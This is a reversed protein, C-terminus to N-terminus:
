GSRSGAKGESLKHFRLVHKSLPTVTSLRASPARERLRKTLMNSSDHEIIQKAVNRVASVLINEIVDGSSSELHERWSDSNDHPLHEILRRVSSAYFDLLVHTLDICEM